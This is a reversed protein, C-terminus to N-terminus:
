GIVFGGDMLSQLVDADVYDSENPAGSLLKADACFSEGVFVYDIVDDPDVGFRTFVEALRPKDAGVQYFRTKMGFFWHPEVVRCSIQTQDPIIAQLVTSLLSVYEDPEYKLPGGEDEYIGTCCENSMLVKSSLEAITMNDLGGFAVLWVNLNQFAEDSMRSSPRAFAFTLGKAPM